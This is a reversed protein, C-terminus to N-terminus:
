FNLPIIRVFEFSFYKKQWFRLYKSNTLFPFLIIEFQQANPANLFENM